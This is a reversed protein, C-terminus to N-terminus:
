CRMCVEIATIISEMVDQAAEAPIPDEERRLAEQALIQEVKWRYPKNPFINM